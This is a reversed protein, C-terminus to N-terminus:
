IRLFISSIVYKMIGSHDTNIELFLPNCDQVTHSTNSQQFRYPMFYLDGSKNPITLWDVRIVGRTGPAM